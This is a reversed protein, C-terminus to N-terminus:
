APKDAIWLKSRFWLETGRLRLGRATLLAPIDLRHYALYYPENFYHAFWRSIMDSAPRRETPVDGEQWSDLLLLRGGPKLVRLMEDLVRELAPRPLEHLLWISSVIDFRETWEQGDPKLSEANMQLFTAGPRMGLRQALRAVALYAPSLDIGTVQHRRGQLWAQPVWAGTGCGVDLIELKKAPASGDKPHTVPLQDIVAQRMLRNTNFFLVSIQWEYTLAAQLSLNGNKQNHFDNLYYNPYPFDDPPTVPLRVTGTRFKRYIRSLDFPTAAVMAPLTLLDERELKRMMASFGPRAYLRRHLEYSEALSRPLTRMTSPGNPFLLGFALHPPLSAVTHLLAATTSTSM